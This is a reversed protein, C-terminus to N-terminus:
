SSLRELTAVLRQLDNTAHEISVEDLEVDVGDAQISFTFCDACGTPTDPETDGQANILEDELDQLQPAPLDFARKSVDAGTRVTLKAHGDRDVALHRPQAAIGGGHEYVVLPGTPKRPVPKDDDCGPLWLGLAAIVVLLRV